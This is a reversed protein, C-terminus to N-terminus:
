DIFGVAGHPLLNLTNAVAGHRPQDRERRLAREKLSWMFFNTKRRLRALRAHVINPEQVINFDSLIHVAPPRFRSLGDVPDLLVM